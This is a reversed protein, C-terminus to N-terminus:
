ERAAKHFLGASGLWMAVFVLTIPGTVPDQPFGYAGLAAHVIGATLMALAMGRAKFGAILSGALAIVVVGFFLQNYPNDESGIYGVAANAWILFFGAALGLAAGFRYSWSSSIRVALEAALGVGGLLLGAFVFDSLTWNVGSDPAVQMAVLPLLLLLGATGWGIRRLWTVIPEDDRHEIRENM